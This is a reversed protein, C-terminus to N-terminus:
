SEGEPDGTLARRPGSDSTPLPQEQGRPNTSKYPPPPGVAQLVPLLCRNFEEKNNLLTHSADQGIEVAERVQRQLVTRCPKICGMKFLDLM